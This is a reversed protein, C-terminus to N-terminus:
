IQEPKKSFMRKVYKEIHDKPFGLEKFKKFMNAISPKKRDARMKLIVQM